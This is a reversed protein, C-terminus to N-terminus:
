EQDVVQAGVRHGVRLEVLVWGGKLYSLFTLLSPFSSHYFLFPLQFYISFHYIYYSFPTIAISPVLLPFHIPLSFTSLPFFLFFFFFPFLFTLPLPFYSSSSLLWPSSLFFSSFPFPFHFPFLFPPPFSFYFPCPHLFFSLSILHLCFPHSWCHYFFPLFILTNILIFAFM